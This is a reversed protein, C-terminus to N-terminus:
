PITLKQGVRLVDPDRGIVARNADYIKRWKSANGYFKVAIRGLTDGSAVTYRKRGAQGGAPRNPRAAAPCKPLLRCQLALVYIEDEATTSETISAGGPGAPTADAVPELARVHLEPARVSSFVDAIRVRSGLLAGAHSAVVATPPPDVVVEPTARAAMWVSPDDLVMVRPQAVTSEPPAAAHLTQFQADKMMRLSPLFGLDVKPATDGADARVQVTINRALVLGTVYATCEGKPPSAGDSLLRTPDRFRWGSSSFVQPSLWPRSVTIYSYEFSVREIGADGSTGLRTRLEEPASEALVTLEDATVTIRPWAVDVVDTPVYGSPVYSLGDVSTRFFIEALDPDFLKRYGAWAVQPSDSGLDRLVRRAEDVETRGGPGKWAAAAKEVAARLKPEDADWANKIAPDASAISAEGKRNNYEMAAALYADRYREYAVVKKSPGTTGGATDYLLDFATDYAKQQKPTRTGELLEADSLIEGYVDWLRTGEPQWLPGSPIENVLLSFQAHANAGEGFPDAVLARLSTAKLGIPALPFAQYEGQDVFVQGMKGALGLVVKADIGAM